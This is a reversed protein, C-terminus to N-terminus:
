FQHRRKAPLAKVGLLEAVGKDTYCPKTLGFKAAVAEAATREDFAAVYITNDPQKGELSPACSSCWSAFFVINVDGKGKLEASLKAMDVEPCAVPSAALAQSLILSWMTM